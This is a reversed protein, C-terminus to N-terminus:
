SGAGTENTLGFAPVRVHSAPAATPVIRMQPFYLHAAEEAGWGPLPGRSDPRSM